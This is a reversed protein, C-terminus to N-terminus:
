VPYNITEIVYEVQFQIAPGAAAPKATLAVNEPLAFGDGLDVGGTGSASAPLSLVQQTVGGGDQGVDVAQAAATIVQFNLKSVVIRKNAGPAAVLAKSADAAALRNIAVLGKHGKIM